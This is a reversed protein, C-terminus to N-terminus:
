KPPLAVPPPPAVDAPPPPGVDIPESEAIYGPCVQVPEGIYSVIEGGPDLVPQAAWYCDPAYLPQAYGPYAVFGAPVSAMIAGAILASGVVGAAVGPGWGPGRWGWGPGRYGWGPGRYAWGPGRYGWGPGRYAGPGGYRVAPGQGGYRVAPGVGLGPAGRWGAGQGAGRWGAGAGPPGRFGVGPGAGRWGPGTGRWGAGLGPGRFGAGPGAGRWGGGHGRGQASIDTAAVALALAVTSALLLKNKMTTGWGFLLFRTKAVMHAFSPWSVSCPRKQRRSSCPPHLGDNTTTSKPVCFGGSEVYNGACQGQAPKPYHL